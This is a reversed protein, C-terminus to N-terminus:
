WGWFGGGGLWFLGQGERDGRGCTLVFFVAARVIRGCDESGKTPCCPAGFSGWRPKEPTTPASDVSRGPWPEAAPPCPPDGDEGTEGFAAFHRGRGRVARPAGRAASGGPARPSPRSPLCPPLLESHEPPTHQYLFYSPDPLFNRRLAAPPARASLRPGPAAERVQAPVVPGAGARGAGGAPRAERVGRQRPKNRRM